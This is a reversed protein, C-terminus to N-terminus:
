ADSKGKLHDGRWEIFATCAPDDPHAGTDRSCPGLDACDRCLRDAVIAERESQETM